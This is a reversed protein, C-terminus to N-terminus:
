KSLVERSLIGAFLLYAMLVMHIDRITTKDDRSSAFQLLLGEGDGM